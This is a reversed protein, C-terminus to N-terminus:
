GALAQSVSALLSNKLQSEVHYWYMCFQELVVALVLNRGHERGQTTQGAQILDQPNLAASLLKEVHNFAHKSRGMNVMVKLRMKAFEVPELDVPEVVQFWLVRWYTNKEEGQTAYCGCRMCTEHFMLM